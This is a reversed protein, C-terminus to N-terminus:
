KALDWDIQTKRRDPLAKWTRWNFEAQPLTGFIEEIKKEIEPTWKKLVDLAGVNEKIQEPRSAGLLCVSVDKNM